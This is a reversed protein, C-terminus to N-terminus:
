KFFYGFRAPTQEKRLSFSDAPTAGSRIDLASAVPSTGNSIRCGSGELVSSPPKQNQSQSAMDPHHPKLASAKSELRTGPRKQGANRNHLPLVAGCGSREGSAATWALRAGAVPRDSVRTWKANLWISCNKRLREVESRLEVVNLSEYQARLRKEAAASLQGSDLLRQYPTKAPEYTRHLKGGIREKSKLKMM